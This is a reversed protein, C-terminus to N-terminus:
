AVENLLTGASGGTTSTVPVPAPAPAPVPNASPGSRAERVDHAKVAVNALAVKAASADGAKLATGLQGLASNPNSLVSAPVNKTLKDFAAQAGELDGSKVDKALTKMEDRREAQQKSRVPTASNAGLTSLATANM